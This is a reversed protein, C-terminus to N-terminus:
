SIREINIRAVIKGSAKGNMGSIVIIYLHKESAVAIARADDTNLDTTNILM